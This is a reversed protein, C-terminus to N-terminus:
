RRRPPRCPREALMPRSGAATEVPMPAWTCCGSAQTITPPMNRDGIQLRMIMGASARIKMGSTGPVMAGGSGGACYALM